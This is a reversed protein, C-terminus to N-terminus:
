AFWNMDDPNGMLRRLKSACNAVACPIWCTPPSTPWPKDSPSAARPTDVASKALATLATPDAAGVAATPTPTDTPLSVAGGATTPNSGAEWDCTWSADAAVGSSPASAPNGMSGGNIGGGMEAPLPQRLLFCGFSSSRSHPVCTLPFTIAGGGDAPHSGVM